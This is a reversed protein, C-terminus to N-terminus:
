QAAEERHWLMEGGLSFGWVVFMIFAVMTPVRGIALPGDVVMVGVSAVGCSVACLLAVVVQGRSFTRTARAAWAFVGAYGAAAAFFAGFGICALDSLAKIVSPEAMGVILPVLQFFVLDVLGVAHSLVAGIAVILALWDREAHDCERVRLVVHALFPIGPLLALIGLYNGWLFATRHATYYAVVSTSDADTGPFAPVLLAIALSLGAYALGCVGAIVARKRREPRSSM